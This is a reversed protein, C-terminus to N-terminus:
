LLDGEMSHLPVCAMRGGGTICFRKKLLCQGSFTNFRSSRETVDLLERIFDESGEDSDENEVHTMVEARMRSLQHFAEYDRLCQETSPRPDTGYSSRNGLVTRVFAELIPEQTFPYPDEIMSRALTEISQYWEKQYVDVKWKPDLFLPESLKKIRDFCFGGLMLASANNAPFHLVPPYRTGASYEVALFKPQNTKSWDPVWSPLDQIDRDFGIGATTLANLQNHDQKHLSQSLILRMTKTYVMRPTVESGYIPRVQDEPDRVTLGLLAYVKDRPDTSGAHICMELAHELTFSEGYKVDGRFELMSDVNHLGMNYEDRLTSHVYEDASQFRQFLNQDFIVNVARAM